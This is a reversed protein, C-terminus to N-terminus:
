MLGIVGRPDVASVRLLGALVLTLRLSSERKRTPPNISPFCFCPDWFWISFITEVLSSIGLSDLKRTQDELTAKNTTFPDVLLPSPRCWPLIQLTRLLTGLMQGV